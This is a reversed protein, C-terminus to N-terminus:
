AFNFAKVNFFNLSISFDHYCLALFFVDMFFQWTLLNIVLTKKKTTKKKTYLKTIWFRSMPLDIVLYIRTCNFNNSKIDLGSFVWKDIERMYNQLLILQWKTNCAIKYLFCIVAALYLLVFNYNNHEIFYFLNKVIFM